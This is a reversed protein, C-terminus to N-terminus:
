GGGPQPVVLTFRWLELYPAGDPTERAGAFLGDGIPIDVTRDFRQRALVRGADVDIVEVIADYVRQRDLVPFYEVGGEARRLPGTGERWRPDAVHVITWLLGSRQDFWVGMGQSQPPNGPALNAARDYEAFWDAHRTFRKRLMGDADWLEMTYSRAFSLSWFQNGHEPTLWRVAGAIDGPRIQGDPDAGFFGSYSGLADLRHFPHGIRERDGVAANLIVTGTALAIAANTSPPIPASRVERLDPDLVTLRANGRDFVYLTDAPTIDLAIADRFESPGAGARGVERVYRGLANFVLPVSPSIEPTVVFYRGRTDRRVVYPRSSLRDDDPGLPTLTDVRITCRPCALDSPIRASTQAEPGTAAPGATVVNVGASDRTIARVADESASECGILATAIWPLLLRPSHM